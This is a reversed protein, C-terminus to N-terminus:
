ATAKERDKQEKALREAEEAAFDTPHLKAYYSVPVLLSEKEHLLTQKRETTALEYRHDMKIADFPCYEACYGCSMCISADITFAAPEPIPKGDPGSTRVIWICQPPCVKACIGCSTCRIKNTDDDFLLVPLYRFNEPVALRAEPYSVTFLGEDRPHQTFPEAGASTGPVGRWSDRFTSIFHRITVSLGQAIGRAMGVLLPGVNDDTIVRGHRRAEDDNM